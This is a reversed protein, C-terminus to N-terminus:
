FKNTEVMTNIITTLYSVDKLPMNDLFEETVIEDNILLLQLILHKIFNKSNASSNCSDMAKFYHIGKAEIIGVKGYIPMDLHMFYDISKEM